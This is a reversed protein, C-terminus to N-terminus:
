RDPVIRILMDNGAGRTEANATIVYLAGDLTATVQAIRGFRRQLLRGALRGRGAADIRVRLLDEAGLASVILDGSLASTPTPVTTMGSPETGPPFLVVPSTVSPHRTAGKAVPWGYNAGPRIANLEDGAADREVEWLTGTRPHWALGRPDHHGASLVPSSWPNDDPTTGDDRLRLIKGSAAALRQASDPDAGAGIGVYLVGDPGFRAVVSADAPVDHSTIVAAQAIVGGSERARAIRLVPQGRDDGVYAVYVAGTEAFNPPLAISMLRADADRATQRLINEARRTAPSSTAPDIIRLRGHREAVFIRGDAAVALDVPDTLDRAVVDFRLRSGDSSVILGSPPEGEDAPATIAAVTVQLAPSRSSEEVTDGSTVFVALELTHRGATLSPLPASCEFVTETSTPACTEGEVVQRTGDVYLAYRYLALDGPSNATQTWGFRERGTITEGSGSPPPSSPSRSESCSVVLTLFAVLAFRLFRAM